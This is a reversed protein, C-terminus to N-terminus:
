PIAKRECELRGQLAQLYILSLDPAQSTEFGLIRKAAKASKSSGKFTQLYAIAEVDRLPVQTLELLEYTQDLLGGLAAPRDNPHSRFMAFLAQQVQFSHLESSAAIEPLTKVLRTAYRLNLGILRGIRNADWRGDLIAEISLDVAMTRQAAWDACLSVVLANSSCEMLPASSDFLPELEMDCFGTKLFYSERNLPWCSELFAVMESDPPRLYVGSDTKPGDEHALVTPMLLEEDSLKPKQQWHQHDFQPKPSDEAYAELEITENKKRIAEPDRLDRFYYIAARGADVGLGPFKKEVALDDDFPARTRAAAVWLHASKGIKEKGGCAYRLAAAYEGKLSAAATLARKRNEPALRLIALVQEEPLVTENKLKKLRKVLVVPDLWCGRHTPLALMSMSKGDLLECFLKHLRNTLLLGWSSPRSGHTKRFQEIEKCHKENGAWALICPVIDNHIGFTGFPFFSRGLREVIKAARKIVPDILQQTEKDERDITTRTIFDLVLEAEEVRNGNELVQAALEVWQELSAISALAEKDWLRQLDAGNFNCAPLEHSKGEIAKVLEPLAILKGLKRPFRKAEKLLGSLKSATEKNTEAHQGEPSDSRANGGSNERLWAKITKAVSPATAPLLRHIEDLLLPSAVIHKQIFKWTETQIEPKEHILGECTALIAPELCEPKRKIMAALWTQAAKIMSKTKCGLIPRLAEALIAEDQTKAKDVRQLQEFGWKAVNPLESDLLGVYSDFLAVRETTSPKLADHLKFFIEVQSRNFGMRTASFCRDFVKQREMKKLKSLHVIAAVWDPDLYGKMSENHMVGPVEFVRWIDEELVDFQEELTKKLPFDKLRGGVFRYNVRDIMLRIFGDGSPKNCIGEVVLQIVEPFNNSRLQDCCTQAWKDIWEPERDALIEYVLDGEIHTQWGKDAQKFTSCCYLAVTIGELQDSLEWTGRM